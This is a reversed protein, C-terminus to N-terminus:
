HFRYEVKYGTRKIKMGKHKVLSFIESNPGLVMGDAVWSAIVVQLNDEHILLGFVECEVLTQQHGESMSHDLFRVHVLPFKKM